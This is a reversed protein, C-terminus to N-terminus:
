ALTAELNAQKLPTPLSPTYQWLHMKSFQCKTSQSYLPGSRSIIDGSPTRRALEYWGYSYISTGDTSVNGRKCSKGALFAQLVDHM